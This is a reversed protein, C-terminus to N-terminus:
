YITFRYRVGASASLTPAPVLFREAAGTTPSTALIGRTVYQRSLLDDVKFFFSTSGYDYNARAGTLCYGGLRPESNSEDGFIYQSGVCLENASLTLGKAPHVNVGLALRNRPVAPLFAGSQVSQTAPFPAKDLVFATQFTAETYSYGIFGDVWRNWRPNLTVEIGQRRTKPVNTNQGFGATPDFVPFIEDHVMTRYVSATADGWPDWKVRLGGEVSRAKVPKLLPSSSFPGLAIIEGPTPSRFSDSASAFTQLWDTPNFNLGLRPSARNYVRSGNNSPTFLDESEMSDKDWRGAATLVLIKPWLDFTEQAFLGWLREHIINGSSFPFGSFSGASTENVYAYSQEGGFTLTGERGFFEHKDELQITGGNTRLDDRGTSVSTRGQNLPTNELRKRIFGNVSLSLGDALNRRANITGMHLLNDTQVFSVNQRPDAGMESATLSGAQNLADDAFDYSMSADTDADKYGLGATLLHIRAASNRRYGDETERSASVRYSLPGMPGSAEAAYRQFGFSGLDMEASAQPAKRGKKMVINILGAMSNKGFLTQPGPLIEIREIDALPILQFNITGFDAENVRVGDVLVATASLPTANFGRMDVQQQFGNGIDDFIVVGPQSSLLEQITKAGSAAMEEATIVRAQGPVRSADYGPSPLRTAGLIGQVFESTWTETLGGTQAAAPTLSAAAAAAILTRRMLRTM